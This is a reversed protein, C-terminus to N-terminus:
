TLRGTDLKYILRYNNNYHNIQEPLGKLKKQEGVIYSPAYKCVSIRTRLM